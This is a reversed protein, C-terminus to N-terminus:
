LLHKVVLVDPTYLGLIDNVKLEHKGKQDDDAFFLKVNRCAGYLIEFHLLNFVQLYEILDQMLHLGEKDIPIKIAFAQEPHKALLGLLDKGVLLM